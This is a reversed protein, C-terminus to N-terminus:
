PPRHYRKQEIEPQVHPHPRLAPSWSKNRDLTRNLVFEIKNKCSIHSVLYRLFFTIAIPRYETRRFRCVSDRGPLRTHHGIEEDFLRSHAIRTFTRNEIATCWRIQIQNECEANGVCKLLFAEFDLNVTGTIPQVPTFLGEHAKRRFTIAPNILHAKRTRSGSEQFGYPSDLAPCATVPPREEPEIDKALGLPLLCHGAGCLWDVERLVSNRRCQQKALM